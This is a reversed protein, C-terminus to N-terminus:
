GKKSEKPLSTRGFFFQSILTVGLLAAGISAFTKFWLKTNFVKNAADFVLDTFSKGITFFKDEAYAIRKDEYGTFLKHFKKAFYNEDGIKHLMDYRHQKMDELRNHKTLVATTEDLMDNQYMLDMLNHFFYSDDPIDVKKLNNAVQSVEVKGDKVTIPATNKDDPFVQRPIYFKTEYDCMHGDLQIEKAAEILEEMVERPMKNNPVYQVNLNKLRAVRAYFDLANITQRFSSLVGKMRIEAFNKQLDKQSYARVSPNNKQQELLDDYGVLEKILASMKVNEGGELPIKRLKDATATYVEDSRSKYEEPVVQEKITESLKSLRACLKDMVEAYKQESSAIAELKERLMPTVLKRDHRIMKLDKDSFGLIKLMSSDVDNWFNALSSTAGFKTFAYKNLVRGQATFDTMVNALYKLLGQASTNLKNNPMSLLVKAVPGSELTKGQITKLIAPIDVEADLAKEPHIENYHKIKERMLTDFDRSIRIVEDKNLDNNIIHDIRCHNEDFKDSCKKIINDSQLRALLEKDDPMLENVLSEDFQKLLAERASKIVDPVIDRPVHYTMNEPILINKLDKKIAEVTLMDRQVGLANAFSEIMKENVPKDKYIDILSNVSKLIKNNKEADTYNTFHVLMRDAKKSNYKDLLKTVPGELGNCILASMIPTAFGATLMWMTNNQLAIMRMKEQIYDRRNPIDKPVGLRDGIKHIDKDTYAADWPIFLNDQYLPKKRGYSDEYEPMVNFGHILKAPLQLALKPWLAMSAFFSALGVFEMAKTTPTQRRTFLYAAIGLGGIKMGLDNLKGLQHDNADGKWGDKLAKVDYIVDKVFIAPADFIGSKVLHAKPPLPKIFAKNALERNIDFHPKPKEVNIIHVDSKTGNNNKQNVASPKTFSHIYNSLLNTTM